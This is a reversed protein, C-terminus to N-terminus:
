PLPYLKGFPTYFADHFWTTKTIITYEPYQNIIYSYLLVTNDQLPLIIMM